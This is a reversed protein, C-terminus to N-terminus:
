CPKIQKNSREPGLSDCWSIVVIEKADTRMMHAIFPLIGKEVKDRCCNTTSGVFRPSSLVGQHNASDCFFLSLM